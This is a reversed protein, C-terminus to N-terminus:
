CHGYGTTTGYKSTLQVSVQDGASCSTAVTATGSHSSLKTRDSGVKVTVSDVLEPYRGPYHWSVTTGNGTDTASVQAATEPLEVCGGRTLAKLGARDGPGFKTGLKYNGVKMIDRSNDTHHLGVAHGIEHMMLHLRDRKTYRKSQKHYTVTGGTPVHLYGDWGRSGYGGRGAEGNPLSAFRMVIDAEGQKKRGFTMGNVATIKRFAKRTLKRDVKRSSKWQWTITRCPDWRVPLSSDEPQTMLYRFSNTSAGAPEATAPTSGVLSSVAIITAAMLITSRRM